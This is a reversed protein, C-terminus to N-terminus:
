ASWLKEIERYANGGCELQYCRSFNFLSYRLSKSPMLYELSRGSNELEAWCLRCCGLFVFVLDISCTKIMCDHPM